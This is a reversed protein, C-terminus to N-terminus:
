GGTSRPPIQPLRPDLRVTGLRQLLDRVPPLDLEPPPAGHGLLLGLLEAESLELLCALAGAESESLTDGQQQLFRAILLDNELLGRRARWRLRRLTGADAPPSGDTVPPRPVDRHM